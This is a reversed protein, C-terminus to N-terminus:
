LQRDLVGALTNLGGLPPCRAPQDGSAVTDHSDHTDRRHRGAPTFIPAPREGVDIRCPAKLGYCHRVGPAAALTRCQQRQARSKRRTTDRNAGAPPGSPFRTLVSLVTATSSTLSSGASSTPAPPRAPYRCPSAPPTHAPAARHWAPGAGGVPACSRWWSWTAAPPQRVPPVAQAHGPHHHLGRGRVPLRRNVQQLLLTLAPQHVGVLDLVHRASGLRILCSATQSALSASRPM